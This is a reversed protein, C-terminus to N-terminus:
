SYSGCGYNSCRRVCNKSCLFFRNRIGWDGRVQLRPIWAADCYDVNSFLFFSIESVTLYTGRKCVNRTLDSSNRVEIREDHFNFLALEVGLQEGRRTEAPINMLMFFKRTCDHQFLFGVGNWTHLYISIETTCPWINSTTQIPPDLPTGPVRKGGRPGIEKMNVCMKLVFNALCSHMGTPHTGGTCQSVTDRLTPPCAHWAHGGAMCVGRDHM